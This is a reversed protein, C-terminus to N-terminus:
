ESKIFLFYILVIGIALGGFAFPLISGLTMENEANAPLTFRVLLMISIVAFLLALVVRSRKIIAYFMVILLIGIIWPNEMVSKLSLNQIFHIINATEFPRLTETTKNIMEENTM